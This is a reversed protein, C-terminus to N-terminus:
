RVEEATLVSTKGRKISYEPRRVSSAPNMPLIGGTVLYDFPMRSAAVHQKVCPKSYRRGYQETPRGLLEVYGAVLIPNLEELQLGRDECWQCFERVARGYSVRTNSNRINTTFFEIFRSSARTGAASIIVPLGAFGLDSM